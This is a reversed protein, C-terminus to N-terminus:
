ARHELFDKYAEEALEKADDHNGALKLAEDYLIERLEIEPPHEILNSGEEYNM